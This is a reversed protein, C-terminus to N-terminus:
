REEAINGDTPPVCLQSASSGLSHLSHQKDHHGKALTQCAHQTYTGDPMEYWFTGTAGDKCRTREANPAWDTDWLNWSFDLRIGACAEREMLEVPQQVKAECTPAYSTSAAQLTTQMPEAFCGPEVLKQGAAGLRWVYM